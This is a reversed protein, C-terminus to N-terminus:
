EPQKDPYKGLSLFLLSSIAFLPLIGMLVLDYSGTADYVANCIMPSFGAGVSALAGIVGFLAGFNRRPFYRTTLYACADFEAGSALGLLFCAVSAALVSQDTMLLTAAALIAAFGCGTAVLRGNILDLLIGGLIRGSISGLGVLGAIEAASRLTFGEQALIPVANVAIGTTSLSYVMAAIALRVFRPSRYGVSTGSAKAEARARDMKGYISRDRDFTFYILPFIVVFSIIGIGLYAGRWGFEEILRLTLIPVLASAVGTGSLAIAMALGRSKDFRMAIAGTWVTPFVCVLAIAFLAYLALWSYISPGATAFLSIAIAFLPVGILAIRRPGYRDLARGAFPALILALVSTILPGTSIQARSWGFEQELPVIMVGISYVHIATLLMGLVCAPMIIGHQRWEQVAGIQKHEDSSM